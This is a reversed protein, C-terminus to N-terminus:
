ADEHRIESVGCLTTGGCVPCINMACRGAADPASDTENPVKIAGRSGGDLPNSTPSAPEPENHSGGAEVGPVNLEHHACQFDSM